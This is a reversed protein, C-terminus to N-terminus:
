GNCQLTFIRGVLGRTVESAEIWFSYTGLGTHSDAKATIHTISMGGSSLTVSALYFWIDPNPNGSIPGAYMGVEDVFGNLSTVTVTAVSMAGQHVIMNKMTDTLNFDPGITVDFELRHSVGTSTHGVGDIRATYATAIMSSNVSVALQFSVPASPTISVKTSSPSAFPEQTVRLDYSGVLMTLNVDGSFGGLSNVIIDATLTTNHKVPFTLRTPSSTIAFDLGTVRLGIQISHQITGDFALLSITYNGPRVWNHTAIQLMSSASSQAASIVGFSSTMSVPINLSDYTKAISFTVNGSYGGQGSVTITSASAGGQSIIIQSPSASLAFDAGSALVTSSIGRTLATPSGFAIPLLFILLLAPALEL